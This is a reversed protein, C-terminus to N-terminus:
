FKNQFGGQTERKREELQVTKKSFDSEVLKQNKCDSISVVFCKVKQM